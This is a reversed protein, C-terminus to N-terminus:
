LSVSAACPVIEPCSLSTSRSMNAAGGLSFTMRGIVCSMSLGAFGSVCHSGEKVILYAIKHSAGCGGGWPYRGVKVTQVAELSPVDIVTVDGSIGNTTFLKDEEPTLALHWVRKGVVIYKLVEYTKADVVAVHNAPGLAVFAYKGDSTLRMGVPQIKDHNVGPIKFQTVKLREHSNADIVSVTGGVESSVWLLSGDKNFRAYRPRQDVVTTAIQTYSTTDMWHAM